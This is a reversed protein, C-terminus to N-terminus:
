LSAGKVQSNRGGPWCRNRQSLQRQFGEPQLFSLTNKHPLSIAKPHCEPTWPPVSWTASRSQSTAVAPYERTGRRQENRREIMQRWRMVRLTRRRWKRRRKPMSLGIRSNGGRPDRNSGLEGRVEFYTKEPSYHPKPEDDSRGPTRIAVNDASMECVVDWCGLLGDESLEDAESRDRGFHESPVMLLAEVGGGLMNPGMEVLFPVSAVGYLSFVTSIM